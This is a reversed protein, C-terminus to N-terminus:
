SDGIMSELQELVEAGREKRYPEAYFDELELPRHIKVSCSRFVKGL